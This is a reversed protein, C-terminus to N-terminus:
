GAMVTGGGDVRLGQAGDPLEDRAVERQDPDLDPIREALRDLLEPREADIPDM